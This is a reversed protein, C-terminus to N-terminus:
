GPRTDPVFPSQDGADDGLGPLFLAGAVLSAFGDTGAAGHFWRGSLNPTPPPELGLRRHVLRILGGHTVVLLATETRAVLRGLARLVREAMADDCEGGPPAALGGVRWAALEEPWRREIEATTLGSWSGVDRERLATDVDVGLGLREGVITATRRARELDSSVVGALPTGDMATAALRSALGVAQAEGLDSLPPDAWGQWRNEANWRSQGHRLLLLRAM